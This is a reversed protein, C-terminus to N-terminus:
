SAPTLCLVASGLCGHHKPLLRPCPGKGPGHQHDAKWYPQLILWSKVLGLPGGLAQSRQYALLEVVYRVM